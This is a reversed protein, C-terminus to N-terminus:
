EISDPSPVAPSAVPPRPKSHAIILGGLGSLIVSLSVFFGVVPLSSLITILALGLLVFWVGKHLEPWNFKRALWYGVLVAAIIRSLWIAVGYVLGLIIGAPIGIVTVMLLIVAIPTLILALAGFGMTKLPEKAIAGSASSWFAPRWLSILFWIFLAGLISIVLKGTQSLFTNVPKPAAKPEIKRWDVLGSIDANPAIYAESRSTYFLDGKIQANDEIRLSNADFSAKDGVFGALSLNEGAAYLQRQVTGALNVKMGAAFADRELISSKTFHVRQGAGFTDGRVQGSIEATQAAIFLNGLINGNITIEQGAAFLDGNVTGNVVVQQGALFATGDITGDIQVSKGAYFGPGRIIQGSNIIIHEAPEAALATFPLLLILLGMALLLFKQKKLIRLM